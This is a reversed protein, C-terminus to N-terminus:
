ALTCVIAHAADLELELEGLCAPLAVTQGRALSLASEGDRLIVNGDLVTLARLRDHSGLPLAGSGTLRQLVFIDSCLPGEVGILPELLCSGDM